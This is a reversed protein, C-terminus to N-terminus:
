MQFIGGYRYLLARPIAFPVAHRAPARGQGKARNKPVKRAPVLFTRGRCPRNAGVPLEHVTRNYENSGMGARYREKKWIRVMHNRPDYPRNNVARLRGISSKDWAPPPDGGRRTRKPCRGFKCRVLAEGQPTSCLAAFGFYGHKGPALMGNYIATVSPSQHPPIFVEDVASATGRGRLPFAKRGTVNQRGFKCRVM